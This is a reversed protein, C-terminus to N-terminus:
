GRRSSGKAPRFASTFTVGITDDERWALRCDIVTNDRPIALRFTEPVQVTPAFARRPPTEIKLKAGTGSMDLVLCSVSESRGEDLIEALTRMPKRTARRAEIKLAPDSGSTM